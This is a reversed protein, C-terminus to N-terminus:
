TNEKKKGNKKGAVWINQGGNKRKRPRANLKKEQRKTSRPRNQLRKQPREATSNILAQSPGGVTYEGSPDISDVPDGYTYAYANASGGPQPDVQLFRVIQPVYSRAGMGVVGSPLETPLEHSGLWSYKAPAETTPVGYETTRNTGLLKTETESEAATAVINGKLDTLQLVPTEGNHQIASLGSGLGQIYRTWQASLESTWVPTEMGGAYHNTVTAVVNGTSVVESVRRAPDLQYGITEGHQTQSALHSNTFFNSSLEYGGADAASLTKINGFANYTTGADILRDASDYSHTEIAGGETACKGELGPERTTLSLRNTDEDYGYLRVTCGKGAPTEQVQTLRGLKDYTYSQSALISVQSMAHGHISPVIADSYWTCKETCHTTKVYELSTAEGVPNYIYNGSMGNPYGESTENGGVDYSATFTGAASDVLKTLENNPTDTVYVTEGYIAVASPSEFQGNGTGFTGYSAIYTGTSSFEEVRNNGYGAVWVNGGCAM